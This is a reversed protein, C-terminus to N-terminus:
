TPFIRFPVFHLLAQLFRDCFYLCNFFSNQFSTRIGPSIFSIFGSSSLASPYSIKNFQTFQHTLICQVPIFTTTANGHLFGSVPLRLLVPHHFNCNHLLRPICLRFCIPIAYLPIPIQLPSASASSNYIIPFQFTTIQFYIM